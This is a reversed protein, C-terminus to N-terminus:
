DYGVITPFINTLVDSYRLLLDGLRYGTWNHAVCNMKSLRDLRKSAREGLPKISVAIYGKLDRSVIEEVGPVDQLKITKNGSKVQVGLKIVINPGAIAHVVFDFFEESTPCEEVKVFIRQLLPKVVRGEMDQWSLSELSTLIESPQPLCAATHPEQGFFVRSIYTLRSAVPTGTLAYQTKCFTRVSNRLLNMAREKLNGDGHRVTLYMIDIATKIAIVNAPYMSCAMEHANFLLDSALSTFERVAFARGVKRYAHPLGNKPIRQLIDKAKSYDNYAKDILILAVEKDLAAWSEIEEDKVDLAEDATAAMEISIHKLTEETPIIGSLNPDTAIAQGWVISNYLEIQCAAKVNQARLKIPLPLNSTNQLENLMRIADSYNEVFWLLRAHELLVLKSCISTRSKPKAILFAEGYRGLSLARRLAIFRVCDPAEEINSYFVSSQLLPIPSLYDANRDANVASNVRQLDPCDLDAISRCSRFLNLYLDEYLDNM